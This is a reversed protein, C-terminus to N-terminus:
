WEYMDLIDLPHQKGQKYEKIEKRIQESQLEIKGDIIDQTNIWESKEINKDTPKTRSIEKASFIIRLFEEDEGTTKRQYIGILNGLEINLGTEELTERIATEKIDESWISKGGPLQYGPYKSSTKKTLLIKNDQEIIIGSYIKFTATQTKTPIHNTM